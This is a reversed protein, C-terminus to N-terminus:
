SFISCNQISPLFLSALVQISCRSILITISAVLKAGRPNRIIQAPTKSLEIFQNNMQLVPWLMM